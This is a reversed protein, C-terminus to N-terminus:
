RIYQRVDRIVSPLLRLTDNRSMGPKITDHYLMNMIYSDYRTFHNQQSKDNFVSWMLSTDDNLPGLGQLVEEVLCRKFLFEGEDSVIVAQSTTIGRPNSIVRVMCRGRVRARHSHYIDKRIVDSYQKRDVIYVHFNANEAKKITRIDLGHVRRKVGSIFQAVVKRRDKSAKNYVYVRVPKSYKKVYYRGYGLGPYELGFVTKLFGDRLEYDSYVKKDAAQGSLPMGIIIAFFASYHILKRISHSLM